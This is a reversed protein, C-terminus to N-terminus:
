EREERPMGYAPGHVGIPQKTGGGFREGRLRRVKETFLLAKILKDQEEQKMTGIKGLLGSNEIVKGKSDKKWSGIREVASSWQELQKDAEKKEADTLKDWRKSLDLIKKEALSAQQQLSDKLNKYNKNMRNVM